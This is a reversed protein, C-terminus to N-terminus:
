FWPPDWLKSTVTGQWTSGPTATGATLTLDGSLFFVAEPDGGGPPFVVLAAEIGQDVLDIAGPVARQDPMTIFLVLTRSGSTDATVYLVSRGPADGDPGAYVALNSVPVAANNADIALTVNTSGGEYTVAFTADLTGTQEFCLPGSVPDVDGPGSNALATRLLQERGTLQARLALLADDFVSIEDAPISARILSEVRTVEALLADDDWVQDLIQGYRTFYRARSADHLFLRETMVSRTLGPDLSGPGFLQDAGWPLFSIKGSSPDGYVFFNNNNGAYGDWHATMTEVAWFGFFEELDVVQELAAVMAADDTLQLADYIAQLDSRDPNSENTKREFTAMWGDRFDSLTGEYLNGDNDSYHRSLMPKGVREVHTYIGLPVGNVSVRAYNCRPAPIGAGRFLSYGLCQNMHSPDQKDNNLTMKKLGSFRQDPLYEAFDLKLSPKDDDLSGLFGKKRVGVNAITEGEITVTGEVYTFPSGAPQMGCTEGLIALVSRQQLRIEDWDAPAVEIDVSILRDPEFLWDAEEYGPGADAVPVAGDAAGADVGDGGSDSGCGAMVTLATAMVAAIRM